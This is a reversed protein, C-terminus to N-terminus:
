PACASVPACGGDACTGSNCDGGAVCPAGTLALTQCLGDKCVGLVCAVNPDTCDDGPCKAVRCQETACTLGPRCFDDSRCRLGVDLPAGCAGSVCVLGPVCDGNLECGGDAGAPPACQGLTASAGSPAYGTCHLSAECGGLDNCPAGAGGPDRCAGRAASSLADCWLGSACATVGADTAGCAAGAGVGPACAGNTMDCWLPPVAAECDSYTACPSGVAASPRATCVGACGSAAGSCFLGAVCEASSVCAAGARLRPTLVSPCQALVDFVDPSAPLAGLGCPNAAFSAFCAAGKSADYTVAGARLAQALQSFGACDNEGLCHDLTCYPVHQCQMLYACLATTFTVCASDSAQSEVFSAASSDPTPGGGRCAAGLAVGVLIAAMENRRSM